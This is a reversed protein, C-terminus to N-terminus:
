EIVPPLGQPSCIAWLRLLYEGGAGGNQTTGGDHGDCLVPDTGGAIKDEACNVTDSMNSTDVASPCNKSPATARDASSTRRLAM